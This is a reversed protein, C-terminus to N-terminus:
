DLARVAAMLDRRNVIRAVVWGGEYARYIVRWDGVRLRLWRPHGSLAKIDLNEAGAGLARLATGIREAEHGPGIRRLDRRAPSSLTVPLSM